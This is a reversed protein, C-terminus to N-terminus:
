PVSLFTLVPCSLVTLFYDCPTINRRNPSFGGSFRNFGLNAHRNVEGLWDRTYLKLIFNKPAVIKCPTSNGMKRNIKAHAKCCHLALASGTILWRYFYFVPVLLCYKVSLIPRDEGVTIYDSHFDTSNRSFFHLILAIVGNLTMWPWRPRYWHFARIRNGIVHLM